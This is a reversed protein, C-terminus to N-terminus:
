FTQKTHEEDTQKEEKRDTKRRPPALYNNNNDKAVRGGECSILLYYFRWTTAVSLVLGNQNNDWIIIFGDDRKWHESWQEFIRIFTTFVKAEIEQKGEAPFLRM